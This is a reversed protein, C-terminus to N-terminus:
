GEGDILKNIATYKHKGISVKTRGKAIFADIKRGVFAIRNLRLSFLMKLMLLQLLMKRGFVKHKRAAATVQRSVKHNLTKIAGIAVNRGFVSFSDKLTQNLPKNIKELNNLFIQQRSLMKEPSSIETQSISGTEHQRYYADPPLDYHKKYSLGSTLAKLHFDVDQWCALGPTFGDIKKVATRKWIPGSTQWVADLELFRNLDAKEQEVNWLFVAQEPKERFMLMPFVWFDHEPYKKIMSLRQELCFPALLDDSDLFIIYEGTSKQFGQNRCSPAGRPSLTRKEYSIRADNNAYERGVEDSNDNSGDDVVRAEWHAYTQSLLSDLTEGLLDGRNYNPIIISILPQDTM